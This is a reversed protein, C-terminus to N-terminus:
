VDDPNKRPEIKQVARAAAERVERPEHANESLARLRALARAARPGFDGLAEAATRQIFSQPYDLSRTFADVVEDATATPLTAGPAIDWLSRLIAQAYEEFARGQPPDGARHLAQLLIPVAAHGKPGLKGLFWAAHAGATPHDPDLAESLVSIAEDAPAIQVVASAYDSFFPDEGHDKTHKVSQIMSRTATILSRAAPQAAPGLRKLLVVAMERVDPDQSELAQILLPTVAKTPHLREAAQRLPHLHYWRDFQSGGPESQAEKLLVPVSKDVGSSFEAIAQLAEIRVIRSRDDLAALLAPPAPQDIPGLRRCPILLSLRSNPERELVASLVKVLTLPNIPDDVKLYAPAIGSDKLERLLSAAAFAASARVGDDGDRKVVEILSSAAARILDIAAAGRGRMTEALYRWLALAAENRVSAERDHLGEMLAPVVSMFDIAQAGGLESLALRREDSDGSQAQNIWGSTTSTHWLEASLRWIWGIVGVGLILTAVRGSLVLLRYWKMTATQAGLLRIPMCARKM